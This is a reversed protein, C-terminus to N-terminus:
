YWMTWIPCNEKINKEKKILYKYKNIINEFDKKVDDLTFNYQIPIIKDIDKIIENEIEKQLKNNNNDNNIFILIAILFLTILYLIKYIHNNKNKKTHNSYKQFKKRNFKNKEIM